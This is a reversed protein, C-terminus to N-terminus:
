APPSQYPSPSPGPRSVAGQGYQPLADPTWSRLFSEVGQRDYPGQDDRVRTVTKTTRTHPCDTDTWPPPRPGIYSPQVAYLFMSVVAKLDLLWRHHLLVRMMSMQRRERRGLLFRGVASRTPDHPPPSDRPRDPPTLARHRTPDHLDAYTDSPLTWEGM